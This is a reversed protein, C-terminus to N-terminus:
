RRRRRARPSEWALAATAVTDCVLIAVRRFKIALEGELSGGQSLTPLRRGVQGLLGSAKGGMPSSGEKRTGVSCGALQSGPSHAPRPSVDPNARASERGPQSAASHARCVIKPTLLRQASSPPCQRPVTVRSSPGFVEAELQLGRNASMSRGHGLLVFMLVSTTRANGFLFPACVDQGHDVMQLPLAQDSQIVRGRHHTTLITLGRHLLGGAQDALPGRTPREPSHRKKPKREKIGKSPMAMPATTSASFPLKVVDANVITEDTIHLLLDLWPLRGRGARGLHAAPGHQQRGDLWVMRLHQLGRERRLLLARSRSASPPAGASATTAAVATTSATLPFRSDVATTAASGSADRSGPKLYRKSLM